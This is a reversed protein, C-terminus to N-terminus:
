CLPSSRGDRPQLLWSSFLQQFQPPEPEPLSSGWVKRCLPAAWCASPQPGHGVENEVQRLAGGGRTEWPGFVGWFDSRLLAQSIGGMLNLTPARFLTSPTFFAEPLDSACYKACVWLYSLSISTFHFMFTYVNDQLKWQHEMIRFNNQTIIYSPTM